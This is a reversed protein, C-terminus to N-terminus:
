IWGSKRYGEVTKSITETLSCTAKWGTERSFLSSTCVFSPILMQKYTREDFVNKVGFLKSAFTSLKMLVWMFSRPVPLFIVRKQMVEAIVRALQKTDLPSENTLFYLRNLDSMEKVLILIADVLDDVDIYSLRQAKGAPLPMLGNRVMKFVTLMAPDGPGIVVPPRVITTPFPQDALLEEAKLKAEGYPDVPNPMDNETLPRGTINPGAAALSSFLLFRRLKWNQENLRDLIDSVAQHNYHMFMEPSNGNVIAALHVFVDVEPLQLGSKAFLGLDGEVLQMGAAVDAPLKSRNRVLGYLQHGEALLRRCLHIGIFGTCGTIFYRM